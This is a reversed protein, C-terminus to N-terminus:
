PQALHRARRPRRRPLGRAAAGRGRRSRGGRQALRRRAGNSYDCLRSAQESQEGGGQPSPNPTPTGLCQRCRRCVRWGGGGVRGWLPPPLLGHKNDQQPIGNGEVYTESSDLRTAIETRLRSVSQSLEDSRGPAEGLWFPMTPAMGQADEVRVVGREVRRIRYSKNGLQFIDGALSEVAFDENLTGIFHNEPELLVQYDANDPITGGSTLATLGAGRRGRLVRNIADYHILAGRRGRRTTFGEALMTVVASFDERPLARYPWARRVLDYLADEEWERAALEAVIQQALVDLPAVPMVVRDLEGRRTSDLLAACEVLEDRSLPFLRGKPTGIVAHGSRGVRQLFTAISRPSGIQCVLDVDGIDIGLELSATAVLAKLEGRKLRQEAALRQEKALSGHHATVHEEGLIESLARAAREAMRRTNVFILTTRHAEILQVLRQYVEKWVDGSMVAELPSDPVEIALDRARRHGADIIRCKAASGTRRGLLFHAVEEIPKQTASLGVRLLRGGCLADLRELSLALHAGRKNPAVAHIEDIIITRTTALMARGSQSGLLIYLSEPTTVVIHPPRRRMRDRESSPTDGTRVWTRIEVDPLGQKALAARIGSLPAELNREIDNSLAKLPSVYVIRTEEPLKNALAQRVLGDIAALFAALTKGSGTPAAILVNHGAKIAPWAQAQAETPAHFTADFWAAVAPHFLSPKKM